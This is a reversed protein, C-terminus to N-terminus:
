SYRYCLETFVDLLLQTDSDKQQSTAETGDAGQAASVAALWLEVRQQSTLQYLGHPPYLVRGLAAKPCSVTDSTTREASAKQIYQSRFASFLENQSSITMDEDEKPQMDVADTKSKRLSVHYLPDAAFRAALVSCDYALTDALLARWHAQQESFLFNPSLFVTTLAEMSGAAPPSTLYSLLALSAASPAVMRRTTSDSNRKRESGNPVYFYSHPARLALMDQLRTVFEIAFTGAVYKKLYPLWANRRIRQVRLTRANLAYLAGLAGFLMGVRTCRWLSVCRHYFIRDEYNQKSLDSFDASLDRFRQAFIDHHDENHVQHTM